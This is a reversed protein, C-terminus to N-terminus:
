RLFVPMLKIDGLEGDAGVEIREFFTANLM